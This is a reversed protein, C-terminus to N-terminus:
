EKEGKGKEYIVAMEIVWECIGADDKGVDQPEYLPQIFKILQNNVTVNRAAKVADFATMATKESERPSNNWHILLTVYKTGYSVLQPGGLATKYEQQHKSNYVGISKEQKDPLSGMYVHDALEISEVYDRVDSLMMIRCDEQINTQIGKPLVRIEEWSIPRDQQRCYDMLREYQEPDMSIDKRINKKGEKKPRAM